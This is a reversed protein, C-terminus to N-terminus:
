VPKGADSVSHLSVSTQSSLTAISRDAAAARHDTSQQLPSKSLCLSSVVGSLESADRVGNPLPIYGAM